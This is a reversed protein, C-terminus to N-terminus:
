VLARLLEGIGVSWGGSLDVYRLDALLAPPRGGPLLVPLIRVSQGELQRALASMWERGMWPSDVGAASYCVVVHSARSLGENMFGVISDGPGLSWADLWVDHGAARLEAALREADPLDSGRHSIFVHAM